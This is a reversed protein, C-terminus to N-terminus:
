FNKQPALIWYKSGNKIGPLLHSRKGPPRGDNLLSSLDGLVYSNEAFYSHTLFGTRVRSADITDVGPVVILAGGARPNGYATQSLSIARDESSSYLTIHWSKTNNQVEVFAKALNEFTGADVDPAALVIETFHPLHPDNKSALCIEYLARTISRTGMSHAILHIREAGSSLAIEALFDKLHPVTWESDATDHLYGTYSDQSPWSYMIPAGLFELDKHLQATRRCADTFSTNYGHIFILVERRPNAHEGIRQRLLDLFLEKDQPEISSVLIHKTPDAFRATFPSALTGRARFTPITVKCTGFQLNEARESGYLVYLPRQNRAKRDTAYFVPVTMYGPAPPGEGAAGESPPFVPYGAAVLIIHLLRGRAAELADDDDIKGITKFAEQIRQAKVQTIAIAEIADARLFKDQIANAVELAGMFDGSEAQAQVISLLAINKARGPPMAAVTELAGEFNGAQVQHEAATELTDPKALNRMNAERKRETAKGQARTMLDLSTTESFDTTIVDATKRAGEFDGAEIQKTVIEEFISLTTPTDSIANVRAITHLAAELSIALAQVIAISSLAHRKPDNSVISSAIDLAAKIDGSRAKSQVIDKLVFDRSSDEKIDRTLELAMEIVGARVLEKAVGTFAWDREKQDPIARVIERVGNADGTKSRIIAIEEINWYPLSAATTVAGGFDGNEAQITAIHSIADIRTSEDVIAHAMRLALKLDGEWARAEALMRNMEDSLYGTEKVV